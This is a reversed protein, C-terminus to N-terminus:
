HPDGTPMSQDGRLVVLPHGKLSRLPVKGMRVEDGPIGARKAPPEERIHLQSMGAMCLSIQIHSSHSREM